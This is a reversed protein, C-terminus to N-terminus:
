WYTIRKLDCLFFSNSRFAVVNTPGRKLKIQVMCVILRHVTKRLIKKVGFWVLNYSLPILNSLKRRPFDHIYVISIMLIFDKTKPKKQIARRYIISCTLKGHFMVHFHLSFFNLELFQTNFDHDSVSIHIINLKHFNTSLM